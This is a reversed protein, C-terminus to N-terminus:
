PILLPTISQDEGAETSTVGPHSKSEDSDFRIEPVPLAHPSQLADHLLVADGMPLTGAPLTEVFLEPPLWPVVGDMPASNEDIFFQELVDLNSAEADSGMVGLDRALLLRAAQYNLWVSLVNDKSARLDGLATLMSFSATPSLQNAPAGPPAPVPPRNMLQMSVDVRRIAIELARRQIEFSRELQKMERLLRRVNQGITDQFRILDRRSRQYEIITERFANRELLRTFAGDFRLGLRLTGTPGRFKVPNNGLTRVDGSVFIDLDSKLANAQLTIQRWQDVVSARANMWDLRNLEAIGYADEPELGIKPLAVKSLRVRIETLYILDISEALNRAMRAVHSLSEQTLPTPFSSNEIEVRLSQLQTSIREITDGPTIAIGGDIPTAKREVEPDEGDSAPLQDNANDGYFGPRRNFQALGNLVAEAEDITRELDKLLVPERVNESGDILDLADDSVQRMQNLLHLTSPTNLNVPTILEDAVVVPLESPLGLRTVKYDDLSSELRTRLELLNNREVEVNQRFEDVRILEITGASLHGELLQIAREQTALNQESNRTEQLQQLLGLFGGLRAGVSTVFGTTLARNPSVVSQRETQSVITELRIAADVNGAFSGTDSPNRLPGLVGLEGVALNTLFGQNYREMARMNALLNRESQTLDEMAVGRFAGRLLPQVLTFNLLSFTDSSDQGAFQWVFTNAFGVLLEGATTFRRRFLADSHSVLENREGTVRNRLRGLHSFTTDNGAFFQVDFEFREASLDLASLYVTEVQRQIDPSNVRAINIASPLSLKVAGSTTIECYSGLEDQWAPNDLFQRTGNRWWHKDGRHGDASRMYQQSEIDDQPIPPSVASYIDHFRSRPDSDVEIPHVSHQTECAKEALLRRADADARVFHKERSCGLLLLLCFCATTSCRLVSNVVRSQNERAVYLGTVQSPIRISRASM